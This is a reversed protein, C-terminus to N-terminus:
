GYLKGLEEKLSGKKGWTTQERKAFSFALPTAGRQNSNKLVKL